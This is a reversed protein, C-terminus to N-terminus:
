RRGGCLRRAALANLAAKYESDTLAKGEAWGMFRALAAQQWGPVRHRAALVSLSELKPSPAAADEQPVIPAGQVAEQAATKEMSVGDQSVAPTIAKEQVDEKMVKQKAAM